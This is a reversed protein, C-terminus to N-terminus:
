DKPALYSVIGFIGSAVLFGFMISEGMQMGVQDGLLWAAFGLEVCSFRMFGKPSVPKDLWSM